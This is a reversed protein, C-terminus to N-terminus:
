GGNSAPAPPLGAPVEVVHLTRTPFAFEIGAETFSKFIALNIEQQTDMYSAYDPVEMYYVTEFDLSSNGFAKLHSRDFRANAQSEVAARIMAPIKRLADPPTGYIVGVPFVIRRERMRGYNRIRSTLLDSNAFVLQEGSLSRIRTTKLGVNEVTGSMDGVQVFDGLVFPKDIVISLSGFLDGLVNQLALAVAVGGIGLSTVFANVQVGLTGLATLALVTWLLMRTIFSAAGLATAVGPDDEIQQRKWRGILYDIIGSGWLGVQLHFGLVLIVVLVREADAPLDLPRAAAWLVVLGILLTRTKDLLEVVLDDIDNTTRGALKRIRGLALGTLWRLLVTFVVATALAILIQSLPIGGVTVDLWQQLNM